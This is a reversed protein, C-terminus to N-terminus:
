NTTFLYCRGIQMFCTKYKPFSKESFKAGLNGLLLPAMERVGSGTQGRFRVSRHHMNKAKGATFPGKGASCFDLSFVPPIGCKLTCCESVYVM